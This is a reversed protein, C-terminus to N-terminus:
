FDEVVSSDRCADIYRLDEFVFDPASIPSRSCLHIM